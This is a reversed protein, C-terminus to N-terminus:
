ACIFEGDWGEWRSDYDVVRLIYFVNEAVVFNEDLPM